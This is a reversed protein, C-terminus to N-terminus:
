RRRAFYPPVIHVIMGQIDRNAFTSRRILLEKLFHNNQRLPERKSHVMLLTSQRLTTFSLTINKSCASERNKGVHTNIERGEKAPKTGIVSRVVRPTVLGSSNGQSHAMRVSSSLNTPDQTMIGSRNLLSICSPVVFTRVVAHFTFLHTM